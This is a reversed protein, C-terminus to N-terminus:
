SHDNIRDYLHRGHLHGDRRGQRRRARRDARRREVAVPQGTVRREGYRRDVMVSVGKQGAFTSRLEKELRALDERLSGVREQTLRKEELLAGYCHM